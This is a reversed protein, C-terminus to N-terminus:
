CGECRCHEAHTRHATRSPRQARALAQVRPMHCGSLLPWCRGPVGAHLSSACCLLFVHKIDRRTEHQPIVTCTRASTRASSTNVRRHATGLSLSGSEAGAERPQSQEPASFRCSGRKDVQVLALATSSGPRAKCDRIRDSRQLLLSPDRYVGFDLVLFRLKLVTQVLM